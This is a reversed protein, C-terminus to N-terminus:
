TPVWACRTESFPDRPKARGPRHPVFDRTITRPSDHRVALLEVYRRMLDYPHQYDLPDRYRQGVRTLIPSSSDKSTNKTNNMIVWHPLVEEM